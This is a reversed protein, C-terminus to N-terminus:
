AKESEHGRKDPVLFIFVLSSALLLFPYFLFPMIQFASVAYGLEAAASIAVLMQAGYPIVGQFVCSFTDLISATKRRSIDYTEAMDATIPNAIVIAVTNNATAIDMAGVLLGMGLQGGKKSKFLSKIGNLLATFGGYERILACIASVLVAVMTTEFMGAAGSGMSALLDTAATAGTAVMILSGSLIGLLLVVFVNVGVIGGVLVILYPVLQILDYDHSVTGSIDSGLSLALIIALTALAAPVAIKFNERFKDKMQCGQGQCAAITTDSIFSLNDGFMAGGMVSAVCLPLDFGSATSVAVAIPTILTITGVSTGMALSVFCSVVFLVLVSFEAPIVSLMLYAVSEASDRGVTGVFIGAAMFILVMTVITKDGIGRGMVVLKDDFPLKRNQVCAVLLAVLFIVVIPINYFGMPIGMGYEFLVGLGLYLVLFVGIPLLAKVNGKEM